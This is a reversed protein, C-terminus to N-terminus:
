TVTFQADLHRLTQYRRTIQVEVADGYRAVAEVVLAVIVFRRSM